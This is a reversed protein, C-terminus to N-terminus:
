HHAVQTSLQSPLQGKKLTEGINPVEYELPCGRWICLSLVSLVTDFVSFLQSFPTSPLIHLLWSILSHIHDYTIICM